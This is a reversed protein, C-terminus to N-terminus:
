ATSTETATAKGATACVVAVGPPTARLPMTVRPVPVDEDATAGAVETAGVTTAGAVETVGVTTAGAVETVGVAAVWAVEPVVVPPEAVPEAPPAADVLPAV